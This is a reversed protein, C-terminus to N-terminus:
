TSCKEVRLQDEPMLIKEYAEKDIEGQEILRKIEKRLIDYKIRKRAITNWFSGFFERLISEEPLNKKETYIAELGALSIRKVSKKKMIKLIQGRLKKRQIELQKEKQDIKHYEKMLGSLKEQWNM